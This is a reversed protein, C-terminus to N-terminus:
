PRRLIDLKYIVIHRINTRIDETHEIASISIPADAQAGIQFDFRGPTDLTFTLEIGNDFVNGVRSQCVQLETLAATVFQAAGGFERMTLWLAYHSPSPRPCVPSDFPIRCDWFAKYRGAPLSFLDSVAGVSLISMAPNSTTQLPDIWAGLLGEVGGPRRYFRPDNGKWSDVLSWRESYPLGVFQNCEPEDIRDDSESSPLEDFDSM